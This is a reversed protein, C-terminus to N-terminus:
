DRASSSSAGDIEAGFQHELFGRSAVRKIRPPNYLLDVDLSKVNLCEESLRTM